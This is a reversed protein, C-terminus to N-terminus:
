RVQWPSTASRLLPTHRCRGCRVTTRAGVSNLYTWRRLTRNLAPFWLASHRDAAGSRARRNDISAAICCYWYVTSGRAISHQLMGCQPAVHPNANCRRVKPFRSDLFRAIAAVVSPVNVMLAADPLGSAARSATLSGVIAAVGAVAHAQVQSGCCGLLMGRQVGIGCSAWEWWLGVGVETSEWKPRNRRLGLGISPWGWRPVNV